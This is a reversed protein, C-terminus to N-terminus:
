RKGSGSRRDISRSYSREAPSIANESAGRAARNSPAERQGPTGLCAGQPRTCGTVARATTDRRRRAETEAWEDRQVHTLRVGHLRRRPRDNDEVAYRCPTWCLGRSYTPRSRLQWRYAHGDVM